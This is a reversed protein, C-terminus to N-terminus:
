ILRAAHATRQNRELNVVSNHPVHLKRAAAVAVRLTYAAKDLSHVDVVNDRPKLTRVAVALTRGAGVLKRPREFKCFVPLIQVFAKM